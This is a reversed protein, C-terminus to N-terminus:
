EKHGFRRDAEATSDRATTAAEDGGQTSDLMLLAMGIAELTCYYGNKPPPRCLFKGQGETTTSWGPVFATVVRAGTTNNNQACDEGRSPLKVRAPWLRLRDNQSLLRSAEKWTGDLVILHRRPSAAWSDSHQVTAAQVLRSMAANRMRAKDRKDRRAQQNNASFDFGKGELDSQLDHADVQAEADRRLWAARMYASLASSAAPERQGSSHSHNCLEFADPAPYLIVTSQRHKLAQDLVPHDGRRFQRGVIVTSRELLRPLLRVSSFARKSEAPHVLVIVHTTNHIPERPLSM